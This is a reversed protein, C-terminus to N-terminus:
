EKLCSTFGPPQTAEKKLTMLFAILTDLEQDSGKFKKRDKKKAERQCDADDKFGPKPNKLFTKLGDAQRKKGVDSLDGGRKDKEEEADEGAPEVGQEKVFAAKAKDVDAARAAITHCTYCRKEIFTKLGADADAAAGEGYALAVGVVTLLLVRALIQGM